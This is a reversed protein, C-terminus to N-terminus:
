WRPGLWDLCATPAVFCARFASWGSQMDQAGRRRDAGAHSPQCHDRQCRRCFFASTGLVRVARYHTLLVYKIPLSSVSRIKAILDRAMAPTATADSILIFKDGIIVGSNPDGEATYAWCHASLQEFTIQKDALDAQSAFTKSMFPLDISAAAGHLHRKAGQKHLLRVNNITMGRDAAKCMDYITLLAIQVATLAEM